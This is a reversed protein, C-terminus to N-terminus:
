CYNIHVDPRMSHWQVASRQVPTFDGDRRASQALRALPPPSLACLESTSGLTVTCCSTGCHLLQSSQIVLALTRQRCRQQEAAAMRRTLRSSGLRLPASPQTQPQAVTQQGESPGIDRYCCTTADCEMQCADQEVATTTTQQVASCQVRGTRENTGDTQPRLRSARGAPSREARREGDVRRWAWAGSNDICRVGVPSAFCALVSWSAALAVAPATLHVGDSSWQSACGNSAVAAACRTWENRM